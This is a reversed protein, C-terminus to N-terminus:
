SADGVEKKARKFWDAWDIARGDYAERLLAHAAALRQLTETHKCMEDLYSKTNDDNIAKLQVYRAEAAALQAKLHDCELAWADVFGERDFVLKDLEAVRSEAAALQQELWAVYENRYAESGGDNPHITFFKKGPYESM